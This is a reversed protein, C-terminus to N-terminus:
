NISPIWYLIIEVRVWIYLIIVLFIHLVKSYGSINFGLSGGGGVCVCVWTTLFVPCCM